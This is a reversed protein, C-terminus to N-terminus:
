VFFAIRFSYITNTFLKRIQSSVSSFMQLKFLSSVVRMDAFEFISHGPKHVFEEIGVKYKYEAEALFKELKKASGPEYSEFMALLEDWKAPVQMFEKKDFIVQYSPDLRVLDYYDSSKKGFLEFFDEFVDPMWYWSPGMDFVFGEEEFKRARGGAISNKELITVDYGKKALCCASALGAFGSGIVIVKKSM